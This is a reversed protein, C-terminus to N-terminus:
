NNLAGQRIWTRIKAIQCDQLKGGIPMPQNVNNSHTIAGLLQNNTLACAQVGNGATPTCASLDWGGFKNVADHCGNTGCNGVLIPKVDLSYSMPASATDCTVVPSASDVPKEFKNKTCAMQLLFGLFLM